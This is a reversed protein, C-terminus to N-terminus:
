PGPPTGDPCEVRMATVRGAVDYVRCAVGWTAEGQDPPLLDGSEWFAYVDVRISTGEGGVVRWDANARSGIVSRGRGELWRAVVARRREPSGPRARALVDDLATPLVLDAVRGAEADADQQLTSCGAALLVVTLVAM